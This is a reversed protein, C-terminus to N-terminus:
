DSFYLGWTEAVIPDALLRDWITSLPTMEERFDYWTLLLLLYLDAATRHEGLLFPGPMLADAVLAWYRDVARDAAERVGPAGAPDATYREPYAQRLVAGYLNVAMFVLWRDFRARDASGPPPALGAGPHADVLHLIMAASETLVTGDPLVLTPIEGMPNLRLYDPRRHEGAKHDIRIRECPAGALRLVIDPAFAGTDKNWYLRYM